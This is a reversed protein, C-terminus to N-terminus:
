MSYWLFWRGVLVGFTGFVYELSGTIASVDRYSWPTCCCCQACMSICVCGVGVHIFLIDCCSLTSACINTHRCMTTHPHKWIRYSHIVKGIILLGDDWGYGIFVGSCDLMSRMM